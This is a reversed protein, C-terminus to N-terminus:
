GEVLRQSCVRHRLQFCEVQWCGAIGVARERQVVSLDFDGAGRALKLLLRKIGLGFLILEACRGYVEDNLRLTVEDKGFEIFQASQGIEDFGLGIILAGDPTRKFDIADGDSIGLGAFDLAVCEYGTRQMSLHDTRLFEGEVCALLLQRPYSKRVARASEDPGNKKSQGDGAQNGRRWVSVVASKGRGPRECLM